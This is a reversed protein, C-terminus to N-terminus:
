PFLNASPRGILVKFTASALDVAGGSTNVVILKVTNAASVYAFLNVLAQDLSCSTGVVMDGLAVGAVTISTAASQAGTAVSAFDLATQEVAWVQDFVARFQYQSNNVVTAM